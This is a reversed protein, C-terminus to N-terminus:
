YKPRWFSLSWVTKEEGEGEGDGEFDLYIYLCPDRCVSSKILGTFFILWAFLFSKTTSWRSEFCHCEIWILVIHINLHAVPLQVRAHLFVRLKSPGEDVFHIGNKAQLQEDRKPNSNGHSENLGNSMEKTGRLAKIDHDGGDNEGNDTLERKKQKKKKKSQIQIYENM